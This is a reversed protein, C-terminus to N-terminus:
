GSGGSYRTIKQGGRKGGSPSKKKEALLRKVPRNEERKKDQLIQQKRFAEGQLVKRKEEDEFSEDKHRNQNVRKKGRGLVRKVPLTRKKGLVKKKEELGNAVGPCMILRKQILGKGLDLKRERTRRSQGREWSVL